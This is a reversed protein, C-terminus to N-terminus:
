FAKVVKVLFDVLGAIIKEGKEATALAPDGIIGTETIENFNEYYAFNHGAIRATNSSVTEFNRNRSAPLDKRAKQMDVLEPRLALVLSTPGESAHGWPKDKTELVDQSFEKGISYVEIAACQTGYKSHLDRAVVHSADVHGHHANIFLLNKCGQRVLNAALQRIISIITEQKFCITGPYQRLWEVWSFTLVPAVLVGAKEGVRKAIGEAIIAETGTPLHNGYEETAGLPLIATPTNALLAEIEPGTMEPMYYSKKKMNNM